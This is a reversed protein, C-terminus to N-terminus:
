RPTLAAAALAAAACYMVMAATTSMWSAKRNRLLALLGIASMSYLITAPVYAEPAPVFTSPGGFRPSTAFGPYAVILSGGLLGLLVLAAVAAQAPRNLGSLSEM